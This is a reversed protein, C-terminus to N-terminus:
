SEGGSDHVPESRAIEYGGLMLLAWWYAGEIREATDPEDHLVFSGPRAMLSLEAGAGSDRAPFVEARPRVVPGYGPTVCITVFSHGEYPPDIAFCRATGAFGGVSEIHVTATAM